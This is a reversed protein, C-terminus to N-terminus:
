SDLRHKEWSRQVDRGRLADQLESQWRQVGFGVRGTSLKRDPKLKM